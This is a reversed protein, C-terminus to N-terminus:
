DSQFLSFSLLFSQFFRYNLLQIRKKKWRKASQHLSYTSVFTQKHSYRYSQIQKRWKDHIYVFGMPTEFKKERILAYRERILTLSERIKALINTYSYAFRLQKYRKELVNPLIWGFSVCVIKLYFFDLNTWIFTLVQIGSSFTIVFIYFFINVIKCMKKMLCM